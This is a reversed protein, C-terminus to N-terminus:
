PHLGAHKHHVEPAYHGQGGIQRIAEHVGIDVRGGDRVLVPVMEVDPTVRRPHVGVPAHAM